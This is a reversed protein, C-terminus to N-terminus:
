MLWGPRAVGKELGLQTAGSLARELLPVAQNGKQQLLLAEASELL